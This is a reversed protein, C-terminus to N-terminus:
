TLLTKWQSSQKGRKQNAHQGQCRLGTGQLAQYYIALRGGNGLCDDGRGIDSGRGGALSQGVGGAGVAKQLHRGSVVFNDDFLRAEARVRRFDFQEDVSRGGEVHLQGQSSDGFGDVHHRFGRGDIRLVGGDAIGEVLGLYFLHGQLRAVDYREKADLGTHRRGALDQAGTGILVIDQQIADVDIVVLAGVAEVGNEGNGEIRNLLEAGRNGSQAGVEAAGATTLDGDDGLAAGILEVTRGVLVIAVGEGLGVVPEAVAGADGTGSEDAVLVSSGEAARDELITDKEEEVVFGAFVAAGTGLSGVNGGATEGGAINLDSNFSPRVTVRDGCSTTLM